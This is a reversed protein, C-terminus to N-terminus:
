KNSKGYMVVFNVASKWLERVRDYEATPLELYMLERDFYCIGSHDNKRVMIIIKTLNISYEKGSVDKVDIVLDM